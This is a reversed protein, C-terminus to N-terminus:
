EELEYSKPMLDDFWVNGQKKRVQKDKLQGELDAYLMKLNENERRLEDMLKRSKKLEEEKEVLVNTMDSIGLKM